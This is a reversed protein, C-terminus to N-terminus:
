SAVLLEFCLHPNFGYLVLSGMQLAILGLAMTLTLIHSYLAAKKNNSFCNLNSIQKTNKSRLNYILLDIM